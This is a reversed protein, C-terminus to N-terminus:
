SLTEQLRRVITKFYQSTIRRERGSDKLHFYKTNSDGEKLDKEKARQRCKIKEDRLLKKLGVHMDVKHDKEQVTLLTTEGKRDLIDMRELVM